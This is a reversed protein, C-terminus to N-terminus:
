RDARIPQVFRCVFQKKGTPTSAFLKIMRLQHLPRIQQYDQWWAKVFSHFRSDIAALVRLNHRSRVPLLRCCDTSQTKAQEKNLQKLVQPHAAGTQDALTPAFDLVYM